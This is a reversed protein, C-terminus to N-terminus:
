VGCTSFQQTLPKTGWCPSTSLPHLSLFWNNYAKFLFMPGKDRTQMGETPHIDKSGDSVVM